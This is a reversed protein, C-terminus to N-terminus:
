IQLKAVGVDLGVPVGDAVLLGDGAAVHGTPAHGVATAVSVPLGCGEKVRGVSGPTLAASVGTGLGEGDIGGDVCFGAEAAGVGTSVLAAVRVKVDVAFAVGIAKEVM